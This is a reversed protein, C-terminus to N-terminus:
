FPIDDIPIAKSSDVEYLQIVKEGITSTQSPKLFLIKGAAMDQKVRQEFEDLGQPVLRRRRGLLGALSVASSQQSSHACDNLLRIFDEYNEAVTDLSEAKSKLIFVSNLLHEVIDLAVRIDSFSPEKIEHAADNGLFRTAHLLKKDSNSIHGAKFLQDIRKELSNGAIKLDNCVAEICARLGISALIYSKSSLAQLTQKYVKTILDPLFYIEKLPHHGAIATPYQSQTVEHSISGDFNEELSELDEHTLLFGCTHCGLCRVSQWLYREHYGDPDIEETHTFLIEHRTERCCTRCDIWILKSM